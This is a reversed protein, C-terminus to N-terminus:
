LLGEVIGQGFDQAGAQAKRGGDVLDTAGVKGLRGERRRDGLAGGVARRAAGGGPTKAENSPHSAPEDAHFQVFSLSSISAQGLRAM